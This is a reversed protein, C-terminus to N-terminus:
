GNKKSRYSKPHQVRVEKEVREAQARAWDGLTQQGLQRVEKVLLGEVGDATSPVGEAGEAMRLIARVREKLEPHRNLQELMQQDTEHSEKKTRKRM